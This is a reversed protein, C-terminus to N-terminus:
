DTTVCKALNVPKDCNLDRLGSLFYSIIQFPIISLISSFTKNYPVRIIEDVKDNKYDEIDTILFIRAGRLYVEEIASTTKRLADDNEKQLIFIIPLKEDILAFPGHKLSATPYGQIFVRGVEKIKLSGEFATARLLGSSLVFGHNNEDLSNIIKFIQKNCVFLHKGDRGEPFYSFYKKLITKIQSSLKLFDDPIKGNYNQLYMSILKLGIIQTVYAKTSAVGVERGAHLYIQYDCERAILSNEVNVVAITPIKYKKINKLARYTDLTEGSQSVFIAIINGTSLDYKTFESAIICRVSRFPCKNFFWKSSLCSHYSTGCGLLLVDYESMNKIKELQKLEVIDEINQYKNWNCPNSIVEGQEYIEKAMFFPFKGPSLEIKEKSVNHFILGKKIIDDIKYDVSLSIVKNDDLITYKNVKNIFGSVESSVMITGNSTNFGILLPNGNRSVFINNPFDKHLLVIAWSGKLVKNAKEISNIISNVTVNKNSLDRAVWNSIVETDTESSFYYKDKILDKKLEEYNEIIGNHIVALKGDYSLHPHSNEITKKGSTAWRTHAIGIMADLPFDEKQLLLKEIADNKNKVAKLLCKFNSDILGCSDYGRNQLAKLSNILTLFCEYNKANKYLFAIIGCM